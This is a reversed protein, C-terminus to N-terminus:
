RDNPAAGIFVNLEDVVAKSGAETQYWFMSVPVHRSGGFRLRPRYVHGGDTHETTEVDVATLTDLPYLTEKKGAVGWRVVRVQNGSPDIEVVSAPERKLMYIGGALNGLGITAGLVATLMDPAASLSLYLATSGGMIFFSYFLWFLTPNDRVVLLGSVIETRMAVGKHPSALVLSVYAIHGYYEGRAVRRRAEAKLAAAM